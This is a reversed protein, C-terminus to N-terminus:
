GEEAWLVGWVCVKSLLRMKFEQFSLEQARGGGVGGSGMGNYVFYALVALGIWQVPVDLKPDKGGETLHECM